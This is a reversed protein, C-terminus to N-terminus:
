TLTHRDSLSPLGPVGYPAILPVTHLGQPLSVSKQASMAGALVVRDRGKAKAQYLAEDALKLIQAASTGHEPFGAVGISATIRRLIEGRHRIQLNTVHERLKQARQCGVDLSTDALILLFEEGGYRCAIDGGRIQSNFTSGLERLLVDGAEHGLLDNFRKFHDIDIMLVTVPKANRAARLLERELSEEMHRRNFLGTLPDRVSQYKLTERLMLNAFALSIQEAVTTALEQTRQVLRPNATSHCLAPDDISLVGLSDGQAVMPICLHCSASAEDSHGCLLSLTGPEVLHVRGKRLAWCSEPAFPGPKKSATAGWSLAVDLFNRSSNLMLVTGAAFFQQLVRAAQQRAEDVTLCSQLLEVLENIAEMQSTHEQLEALSGRLQEDTRALEETRRAVRQELEINLTQVTQHMRIRANADSATRRTAFFAIEAALFGALLVLASTIESTKAYQSESQEMAMKMQKMEFSVLDNWAAHYAFLAPTTEEVMLAEAMRTKHQSVLLDIARQYSNVYPVRTQQVALLLKREQESDCQSEIDHIVDSVRSNEAGRTQLAESFTAQEPLLQMTIRRNETSYRLGEHALQLKTWRQSLKDQLNRNIRAVRGISWYSTGLLLVILVAFSMGLKIALPQGDEFIMGHLRERLSERGADSRCLDSAVIEEAQQAEDGHSEKQYEMVAAESGMRMERM